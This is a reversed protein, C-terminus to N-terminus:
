SAGHDAAGAGDKPGRLESTKKSDWCASCRGGKAAPGHDANNICVGAARRADHMKKTAARQSAARRTALVVRTM